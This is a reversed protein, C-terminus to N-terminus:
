GQKFVDVGSQITSIILEPTTRIHAALALAARADQGQIASQYILEHESHVDRGSQLGIAYRRYRECHQTLQRIVRLTWPSGCASLLAQHFKSNAIEWSKANAASLPREFQSLTSFTDRLQDRWAQDGNNISTRLAETEINVRLNTIDSLEEITIPAVTFGRQGEAIVMADSILRSLAERLTGAGVAYRDKLHAILLKERPALRGTLIDERLEEYAREILTRYGPENSSDAALNLSHLSKKAV